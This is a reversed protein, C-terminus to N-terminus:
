VGDFLNAMPKKSCTVSPFFSLEPQQITGYRPAARGEAYLGAYELRRARRFRPAGPIKSIALLPSVRRVSSRPAAM